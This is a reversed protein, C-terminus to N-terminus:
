SFYLHPHHAKGELFKCKFITSFPEKIAWHTFFRGAICSVCSIPIQDRPQSSGRSSSIAVWELIRGQFIGHVSSGPHSCDKPDCVTLCLQALLMCLWNLETWDSLRTQSKTVVHVAARWADRDMVLEWLGGLDTDMSNTIGDLWRM